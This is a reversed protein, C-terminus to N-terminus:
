NTSKPTPSRNTCRRRGEQATGAMCYPESTGEDLPNSRRAPPSAGRSPVRPVGGARDAVEPDLDGLALGAPRALALLGGRLLADCEIGERAEGDRQLCLDGRSTWGPAPHRGFLELYPGERYLSEILARFVEPKVSHGNTPAHIDQSVSTALADPPAPLGRVYDARSPRQGVLLRIAMTM